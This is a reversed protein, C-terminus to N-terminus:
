HSNFSAKNGISFASLTPIFFLLHFLPEGSVMMESKNDRPFHTNRMRVIRPELFKYVSTKLPFIRRGVSM